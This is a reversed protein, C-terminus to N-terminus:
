INNFTRAFICNKWKCFNTTRTGSCYPLIFSYLYKVKQALKQLERMILSLFLGVPFLYNELLFFLKKRAVFFYKGGSANLIKKRPM